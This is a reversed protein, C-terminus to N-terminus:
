VFRPFGTSPTCTCTSPLTALSVKPLVYVGKPIEVTGTSQITGAWVQATYVCFGFVEKLLSGDEKIIFTMCGFINTLILTPLFRDLKFREKARESWSRM